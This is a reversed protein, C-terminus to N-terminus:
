HVAGRKATLHFLARQHFMARAEPNTAVFVRQEAVFSFSPTRDHVAIHGCNVPGIGQRIKDTTLQLAEVDGAGVNMHKRILLLGNAGAAIAVVPAPGVLEM